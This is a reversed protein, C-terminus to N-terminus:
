LQAYSRSPSVHLHRSAPFTEATHDPDQWRVTVVDIEEDDDDEDELDDDDEAFMFLSDDTYSVCSQNSIYYVNRQCDIAKFMSLDIQM